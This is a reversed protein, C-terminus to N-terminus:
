AAHNFRFVAPVTRLLIILDTALSWAHVYDSDLKIRAAYGLSSRGSVQWPGTIGPRAVLYDTAHPGYM